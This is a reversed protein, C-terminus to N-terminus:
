RWRRTSLKSSTGNTRGQQIVLDDLLLKREARETIKEEITHETIFRYVFVPKKQGIRHARDEAQLDGAPELRLRVSHRHRGHRPQNRSRGRAHEPSLLVQPTRLMSRTWKRSASRARYILPLIYDYRDDAARHSLLWVRQHSLLEELIDMMRTMQIDDRRWSWVQCFILVRSNQQKLKVLLKDLLKMKGSNEWLHPGETFPPGQM